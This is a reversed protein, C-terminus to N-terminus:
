LYYTSCIFPTEVDNVKSALDCFQLGLIGVAQALIDRDGTLEADILLKMCATSFISIIYEQIKAMEDDKILTLVSVHWFDWLFSFYGRYYQMNTQFFGVGSEVLLVSGITGLFFAMNSSNAFSSAINVAESHALKEFEERSMTGTVFDAARSRFEFIMKKITIRVEKRTMKELDLAWVMLDISERADDNAAEALKLEEAIRAEEVVEEALKLEEAIRAEEVEAADAEAESAAERERMTSMNTGINIDV